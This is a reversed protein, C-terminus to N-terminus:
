FYLPVEVRETSFDINPVPLKEDTLIAHVRKKNINGYTNIHTRVEPLNFIYNMFADTINM